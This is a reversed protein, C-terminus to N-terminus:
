FGPAEHPRCARNLKRVGSFHSRFAVNYEVVLFGFVGLGQPRLLRAM